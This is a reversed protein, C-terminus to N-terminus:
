FILTDCDVPLGAGVNVIPTAEVSAPLDVLFLKTNVRPDTVEAVTYQTNPNVPDVGVVPSPTLALPPLM